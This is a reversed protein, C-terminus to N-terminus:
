KWIYPAPNVHRGRKKLEFHLHPGTSKGTSGVHGIIQGRSLRQGQHIRIASLHASLTRGGRHKIVVHKGYSYRWKRVKVVRGAAVARVPTGTAAAFDIGGHGGHFSQSIRFHGPKVPANLQGNARQKLLAVASAQGATVPLSACAVFLALTLATLTHTISRSIM